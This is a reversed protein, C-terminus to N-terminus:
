KYSLLLKKYFSEISIYKLIFNSVKEKIDIDNLIYCCQALESKYFTLNHKKNM